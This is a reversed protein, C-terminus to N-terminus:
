AEKRVHLYVDPTKMVGRKRLQYVHNNITYPTRELAYSMEDVGIIDYWDILYRIEDKSWKKGTRRHYLPNYLMRGKKDYTVEM